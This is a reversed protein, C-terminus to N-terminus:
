TISDAYLANERASLFKNSPVSAYRTPDYSGGPYSAAHYRPVVIPDDDDDDDDVRVSAVVIAVIVVVPPPPSSTSRSAM